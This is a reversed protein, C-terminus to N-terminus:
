LLDFWSNVCVVMVAFCCLVARSTHRRCRCCSSSVPSVVPKFYRLTPQTDTDTHLQQQQTGEDDDDDVDDIKILKM